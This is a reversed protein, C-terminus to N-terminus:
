RDMEWSAALIFAVPHQPDDQKVEHRVLHVASLRGQQQLRAAYALVSEYDAAEGSISLEGKQADPELALLAVRDTKATEVTRFLEDWPLALRNLVQEAQGLDKLLAPDLTKAVAARGRSGAREDRLLREARDLDDNLALFQLGSDALAFLAACLMAWGALPMRRRPVFDLDLAKM